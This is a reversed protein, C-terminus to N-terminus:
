HTFFWSKPPNLSPWALISLLVSGGRSSRLLGPAAPALAPSLPLDAVLLPSSYQWHTFFGAEVSTEAPLCSKPPNLSPRASISLLISGGRGALSLPNPPSTVCVIYLNSTENTPALGLALAMG